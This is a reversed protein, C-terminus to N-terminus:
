LEWWSIASGGGAASLGYVSANTPLFLSEDEKTIMGHSSTTAEGISIYLDDDDQLIIMIGVKRSGANSGIETGGPTNPITENASAEAGAGAAVAADTTRIAELDSDYVARAISNNSKAEKAM